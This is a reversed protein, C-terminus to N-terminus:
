PLTLLVREPKQAPLDRRSAVGHDSQSIASM